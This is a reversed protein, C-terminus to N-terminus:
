KLLRVFENTPRFNPDIYKDLEKHFQVVGEASAVKEFEALSDVAFWIQFPPEDRRGITTEYVAVFRAGDPLGKNFRALNAFNTRFDSRMAPLVDIRWVYGNQFVSSKLCPDTQSNASLPFISSAALGGGVVGVAGRLVNRRSVSASSSSVTSKDEM